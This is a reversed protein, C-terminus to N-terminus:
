HLADWVERIEVVVPIYRLSEACIFYQFKMYIEPPRDQQKIYLFPRVSLCKSALLQYHGFTAVSQGVRSYHKPCSDFASSM